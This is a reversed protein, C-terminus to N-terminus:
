HNWRRLSHQQGTGSSVKKVPTPCFCMEDNIPPNGQHDLRKLLHRQGSGSSVKKMHEHHRLEWILFHPFEIPFHWKVIWTHERTGSHALNQVNATLHTKWKVICNKGLSGNNIALFPGITLHSDNKCSFIIKQKKKIDLTGM